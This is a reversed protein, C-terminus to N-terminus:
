SNGLFPLPDKKVSKFVTAHLVVQSSQHDKPCQHLYQEHYPDPLTMKVSLKTLPDNQNNHNPPPWTPKSSPKLYRQSTMM